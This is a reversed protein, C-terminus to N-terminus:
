KLLSYLTDIVSASISTKGYLAKALNIIAKYRNNTEQEDIKRNERDDEIIDREKKYDMDNIDRNIRYELESETKYTDFIRDSSDKQKTYYYDRDSEFDKIKDRYRSYATEDLKSLYELMNYLREYEDNYRSYADKFLEPIKDSIMANYHNKAGVAASIASTNVMGGTRLANESLAREYAEDGLRQYLSYYAKFTPDNEYDYSFSKKSEIKKLIDKMQSDYPSNYDSFNRIEYDANGMNGNPKYESGDNGGDYNGYTMRINNAKLNAEKMKASDGSEEASKYIKKQEVIKSLADPSLLKDYDSIYIDKNEDIIKKKDYYTALITEGKM